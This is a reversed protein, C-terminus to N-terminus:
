VRMFILTKHWYILVVPYFIVKLGLSIQVILFETKNMRVQIGKYYAGIFYYIDGAFLL